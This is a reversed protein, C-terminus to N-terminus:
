EHEHDEDDADDEERKEEEERGIEDTHNAENIGENALLNNAESSRESTPYASM